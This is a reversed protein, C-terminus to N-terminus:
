INQSMINVITYVDNEFLLVLETHTTNILINIFFTGFSLSIHICMRTMYLFNVFDTSVIVQAQMFDVLLDTVTEWNSQPNDEDVIEM